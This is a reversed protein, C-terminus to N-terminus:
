FVIPAWAVTGEDVTRREVRTCLPGNPGLVSAEVLYAGYWLDEFTAGDEDPGVTVEARPGDGGELSATLLFGDPRSPACSATAVTLAATATGVAHLVLRDGVRDGSPMVFRETAVFRAQGEAEITLELERGQTFRAAAFARPRDTCSIAESVTAGGELSEITVRAETVQIREADCARVPMEDAFVVFDWDVFVQGGLPMLNATYPNLGRDLLRSATHRFLPFGDASNATVQITYERLDLPAEVRQPTETCAFRGQFGGDGTGASVIVEVEDVETGCPALEDEGFTWGLELFAVQPDLVLAEDGFGTVPGSGRFLVAGPDGSLEGKASLQLTYDGAPVFATYVGAACDARSAGGPVLAGSADRLQADVATIEPVESCALPGEGRTVSFRVTLAQADSDAGGCGMLGILGVLLM